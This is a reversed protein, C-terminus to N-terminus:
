SIVACDSRYRKPVMFRYSSLQQAIAVFRQSLAAFDGRLRQSIV